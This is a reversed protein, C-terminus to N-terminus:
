EAQRNLAIAGESDVVRCHDVGLHGVGLLTRDRTRTSNIAIITWIPTASGVDFNSTRRSVRVVAVAM